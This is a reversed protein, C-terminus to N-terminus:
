LLEWEEVDGARRIRRARKEDELKSLHLDVGRSAANRLIFGVHQYIELVIEENTWGKSRKGERDVWGGPLSKKPPHKKLLAVIQDERTQRHSLYTELSSRGDVIVPGHAPYLCSPSLDVLSRLSHLYTSLDSFVATSQGLITDATFISHDDEMELCISDTTHGPTYIVKLSYDPREEGNPEYTGAPFSAAIKDDEVENPWKWVRPKKSRGGGKKALLGLVGALGGWHDHHHHTIIIDSIEDNEGLCSALIPLYEVKGEGIDVLLFPSHSGVLYTNTGQLTFHGPNQGLIRTIRPSIKTIHDLPELQTSTM